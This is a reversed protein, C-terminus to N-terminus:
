AHHKLPLPRLSKAIAVMTENSLSDMLSNVVWYTAGNQYLVVMHLNSGNWYFRYTRGRIKHEEGGRLVPADNWDTEEIGYYSSGDGRVFVLRVAHHNGAITYSRVPKASDPSSGSEIFKPAEPTFPLKHELPKLLPLTSPLGPQISPPHKPPLKQSPSPALTGHFTRGVVAVLMAGNQLPRISHPLPGVSADGFLAAVKKAAAKNRKKHAPDFYVRSRFYNFTPANAPIGNPPYVMRYGKQDLGSSAETASGPVNNGNLVTVTTRYAPPAAGAAKKKKQKIGVQLGALSSAQINPSQFEHVAEAISSAPAYAYSVGGIFPASLNPIHVQFTRGQPLDYAFLAYQLVTRDPVAGGGQGAVQINSTIAGIIGPLSTSGISSSIQSRMAKVFEQQRAGRIFDSDSHRYRVFHLAQGGNLKQYGPQINIQDYTEYSPLGANSHFYRRDVDVWVGGMKDVIDRFGTFNVAIIYNIPLGTLAKVTDLAGRFGCTEYASNIKDYYEPKGPCHILVRLDRPLSMMTIAAPNPQARLLMITDSRSGAINPRKDYGIVLAVAPQNPAPVKALEGKMQSIKKIQGKAATKGISHHIFLYWGGGFAGILLLVLAGVSLFAKGVLIWGRRRRPPQQYRIMPTLSGPPLIARGNGNMSAGRGIGRKLTTRM